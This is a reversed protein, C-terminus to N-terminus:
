SISLTEMLSGLAAMSFDRIKAQCFNAYLHGYKLEEDKYFYDKGSVNEIEDKHKYIEVVKHKEELDEPKEEDIKKMYAIEEPSAVEDLKRHERLEYVVELMNYKLSLAADRKGDFNVEVIM